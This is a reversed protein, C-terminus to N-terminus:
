KGAGPMSPGPKLADPGPKVSLPPMPVGGPLMHPIAGPPLPPPASGPPPGSPGGPPGGGGNAAIQTGADAALVKEADGPPLQGQLNINIRTQPPPPPPPPPTQPPPPLETPIFKSIDLRDDLRRLTEEFVAELAQAMPPDSVQMMRIKGLLQEIMPLITAWNSAQQHNNPKGTSGAQVDVEVMTLIDQVDMGFPWFANKGAIRQAQPPRVEQVATEITYHALDTFGDEITDRDAGTRTAFGSQEINAETATKPQNSQAASQLAEQVGSISEMDARIPATNFLEPNYQPQPKAVFLNQLPANPDTPQVGINEGIAADTVKKADEPSLSGRNFIVGGLSRERTLKQNSRCSSYEDQLKFLRFVLSQPHREGDVEFLADLFYPYFRATAQPPAYPEAAWREVGDIMTCIIGQCKRWMEVVKIFEVGKNAGASSSPATKTFAGEAMNDGMQAATEQSKDKTASQKQYYIAAKQLDEDTLRSFKVKAQSKLIYLDNSCWDADLYDTISAVDLSVQMDDARIFDFCMGTNYAAAEKAQLGTLTLKIAERAADMDGPPSIQSGLADQQAHMTEMLSQQTLIDKEVQPCPTKQTYMLAKKWGQGVSLTSRVSKKATKKLRGDRWLRSGVLEATAAFDTADKDPQMGVKESPRVNFDPNKAYLFSVLIDIFSGILNATSAWRPDARGAAYLRDKAFAARAHKDFERATTYEQWTQKVLAREQTDDAKPDADRIGKSVAGALGGNSAGSPSGADDSGTDDGVLDSNDEVAM